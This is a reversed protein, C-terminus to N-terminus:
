AAGARQTHYRAADPVSHAHHRQAEQTAQQLQTRSHDILVRPDITPNETAAQIATTANRATRRVTMTWLHSAGQDAPAKPETRAAYSINSLEAFDLPPAKDYHALKHAQNVLVWSDAAAYPPLSKLAKFLYVHEPQTFDKEILSQVPGSRQLQSPDQMLSILVRRETRASIYTPQDDPGPQPTRDPVSTAYGASTRPAADLREKLEDLVYERTSLELAIRDLSADSTGVHQVEGALADLAAPISPELIFNVAYLAANDPNPSFGPQSARALVEAIARNANNKIRAQAAPDDAARHHDNYTLRGYIHEIMAQTRQESTLTPDTAAPLAIAPDPGTVLADWIEATAPDGFDQPQLWYPSADPSSPTYRFQLARAPDDLIAGIVALERIRVNKDGARGTALRFPVGPTTSPHQAARVTVYADHRAHQPTAPWSPAALTRVVSHVSTWFQPNTLTELAGPVRAAAWQEYTARLSATVADAIVQAPDGLPYAELWREIDNLGTTLLLDYLERVWATKFHTSKLWYVPPSQTWDVFQNYTTRDRLMSSIVNLEHQPALLEPNIM